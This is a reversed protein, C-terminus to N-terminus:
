GHSLLIKHIERILRLSLPFGGRLRAMGHNLAAVYNSAEQVDQVPVGPAESNEVAPSRLALVANGRDSFVACSRQARLRLPHTLPRPTHVGVRRPPWTGPEGTARKGTFSRM